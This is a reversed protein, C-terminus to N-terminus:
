EIWADGTVLSSRASQLERLSEGCARYAGNRDGRALAAKCSALERQAGAIAARALDELQRMSRELRGTDVGRRIDIRANTERAGLELAKEANALPVYTATRVIRDLAVSLEQIPLKLGEAWGNRVFRQDPLICQPMPSCPRFKYILKDGDADIWYGTSYTSLSGSFDFPVTWLDGEDDDVTVGQWAGCDAHPLYVDANGGTGVSEHYTGGYSDWSFWHDGEFRMGCADDPKTLVDGDKTIYSPQYNGGIPNYAESHVEFDYSAAAASGAFAALVAVGLVARHLDHIRM